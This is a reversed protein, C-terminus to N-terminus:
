VETKLPKDHQHVTKTFYSLIMIEAAVGRLWSLLCPLWLEPRCIESEKTHNFCEINTWLQDVQGSTTEEMYSKFPVIVHLKSLSSSFFLTMSFLPGKQWYVSKSVIGVLVIFFLFINLLSPCLCPISYLCMQLDNILYNPSDSIM